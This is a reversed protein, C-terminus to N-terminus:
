QIDVTINYIALAGSNMQSGMRIVFKAEYVEINGDREITIHDDQDVDCVAPITLTVEKGISLMGDESARVVKERIMCDADGLYRIVGDDGPMTDADDVPPSGPTKVMLLRSNYLPLYSM